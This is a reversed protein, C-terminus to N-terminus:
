LNEESYDDSMAIPYFIPMKWAMNNVWRRAYAKATPMDLGTVSTAELVSPCQGM